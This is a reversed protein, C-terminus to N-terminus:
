RKPKDRCNRARGGTARNGRRDRSPRRRGAAARLRASRWNGVPIPTVPVISDWNIARTRRRIIWAVAWIPSARALPAGAHSRVSNVAHSPEGDIKLYGIETIDFQSPATQQAGLLYPALGDSAPHVRTCGHEHQWTPP